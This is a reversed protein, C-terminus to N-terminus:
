KEQFINKNYHKIHKSYNEPLCVSHNNQVTKELKFETNNQKKNHIKDIILM